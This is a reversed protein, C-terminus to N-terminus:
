LSEEKRLTLFFFDTNIDSSQPHFKLSFGGFVNGVCLVQCKLRKCLPLLVKMGGADDEEVALNM